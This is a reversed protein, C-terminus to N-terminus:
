GSAETRAVHAALQARTTFQLKAFIATIYKEVTKEGVGLEQGIARNGLGRAVLVAVERERTSLLGRAARSVATPPVRSELRRVDAVSGAAQYLGLADGLRGAFELALAELLPWGIARYREAALAGLREADRAEFRRAAIADLLAGCAQAVTDDPNASCAACLERLRNVHREDVLRAAFPWFYVVGFPVQEGDVARELMSRAEDIRGLRQLRLGHMAAILNSTGDTGGAAGARVIEPDFCREALADDGLALAVPSAGVGLVVRVVYMDPEALAAEIAGRAEPLRGQLGLLTAKVANAYALPRGFGLERDIAIAADIAHEAAANEGFRLAADAISHLMQSALLPPVEGNRRVLAASAEHFLPRDIAAEACFVQALRFVQHTFARAAEPARVRALAARARDFEMNATAIRGLSAYLHDHAPGALRDAFRDAFAELLDIARRREGGNAYEGAARTLAFVAADYDGRELLLAHEAMCAATANAFDAALQYAEGAKHQVRLRAEPDRTIALVREYYTAAQEGARVALAADGAAESYRLTADDDGAKWAHYALDDVLPPEDASAALVALIRAHLARTDISLLEDYVTQRTLGHRFGFRSSPQAEEAVLNLDRLRRLSALVDARERGIISALTEVAFEQGLVAAHDLVSRDEPRVRTLRDLILARISTPLTGSSKQRELAKKLIEEIFFPNGESRVVIDRREDPALTYSSGMADDILTQVDRETLPELAIRRVTQEREIRGLTALLPVDEQPEDDRYTAVIMVRISGIRPALHALLELSTADAWHLDELALVLARRAALAELFRLVGAFLEAKEVIAPAAVHLGHAECADAALAGLTRRTLATTSELSGPALDILRALLMRFPGYPRPADQLCEGLAYHPARGGGLGRAFETLLRTKGMGASGGVLAVSGRSGALARRMENLLELEAGRGVLRQNSLSPVIM